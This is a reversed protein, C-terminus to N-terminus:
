FHMLPSSGRAEAQAHREDLEQGVGDEDAHEDQDERAELEM